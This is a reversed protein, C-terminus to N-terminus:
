NAEDGTRNKTEKSSDINFIKKLVLKNKGFKKDSKLLVVEVLMLMCSRLTNNDNTIVEFFARIWRFVGLIHKKKRRKVICRCLKDAIM